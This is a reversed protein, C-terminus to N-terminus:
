NIKQLLAFARLGEKLDDNEELIILMEELWRLCLGDNMMSGTLPMSFVSSSVNEELMVLFNVRLGFAM